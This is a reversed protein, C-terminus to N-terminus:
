AGVSEIDGDPIIEEIEDQAAKSNQCESPIAFRDKHGMYYDTMDNTQPGYGLHGVVINESVIMGRGTFCAYHCIHEEDDGIGYDSGVFTIPFKGFEEWANRTFLIAGISYRTSCVSFGLPEHMFKETLADISRLIPQTEGWMYKAVKPDELTAKNHHIGDTIKMTTLGTNRFDDILGCKELLRIHGYCSVNILPSVFAPEYFSNSKVLHYTDLMPEFYTKPLFMDEDLKFIWQAHPHLEIALNQILSLHNVETSLYSWGYHEALDILKANKLGSTMICIDIDQPAAIRIREFVNDWLSEKYGALIICLKDSGSSRDIFEYSSNKVHNVKDDYRRMRRAEFVAAMFQNKNLLSYVGEKLTM